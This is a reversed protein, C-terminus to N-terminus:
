DETIVFWDMVIGCYRRWGDIANFLFQRCVQPSGRLENLAGISKRGNEDHKAAQRSEVAKRRRFTTAAANSPMGPWTM